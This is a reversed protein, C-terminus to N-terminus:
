RNWGLRSEGVFFGRDKQGKQGRLTKEEPGESAFNEGYRFSIFANELMWPTIQWNDIVVAAVDILLSVWWFLNEAKTSSVSGNVQDAKPAAQRAM